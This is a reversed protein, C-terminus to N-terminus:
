PREGRLTKKDTIKDKTYQNVNEQQTNTMSDFLDEEVRSVIKDAAVLDFEWDTLPQRAIEVERMINFATQRDEFETIEDSVLLYRGTSTAKTLVDDAVETGDHLTKM